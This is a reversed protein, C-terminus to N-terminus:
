VVAQLASGTVSNLYASVVTSIPGDQVMRGHDLWIARSCLDKLIATAHSVCLLTKGARHFEVVKGVCKTFFAQDGVGLVEDIM